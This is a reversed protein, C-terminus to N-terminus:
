AQRREDQMDMLLAKVKKKARNLQSKSTSESIGMENAIEKHSWKEFMYLSFVSRYGDPLGKVARKVDNVNLEPTADENEEEIEVEGHIDDNVEVFSLKKKKLSNLSKNVVIRKMWSGFTSDQRFSDLHQFANVFSEQLIDEAEERNNVIRLSVHFM